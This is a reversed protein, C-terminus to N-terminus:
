KLTNYSIIQEVIRCTQKGEKVDHVRIISAGNLLSITNLVITGPLREEPPIGDLMMGIMSKRSIGILIPKELQKLEALRRIILINHELKKGFGIGPDIIINEPKTGMNEYIEVRARLFEKIERVVDKYQPNEQMNKPTGKIHMLIVPCQYKSIVKVMEEDFTGSSIDNIIDAGEDLAIAAVKSKYTDVSIPLEPFHKRIEKIAPIVRQLEEETPVPDSGPRTSEGGIDIIDVGDSVMKEVVKLISDISVRSNSYFSDPTINLVGMCYKHISFDFEKGRIKITKNNTM